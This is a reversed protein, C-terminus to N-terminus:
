MKMMQEEGRVTLVDRLRDAESQELGHIIANTDASATQLEVTALKLMSEIPGSKVDVLQMRGYPVATTRRSLLGRTVLIHEDFEAYGWSRVQRPVLVFLSLQWVLMLVPLFYVLWLPLSWDLLLHGLLPISFVFVLVLTWIIRQMLRLKMYRDSVRKWTIGDIDQGLPKQPVAEPSFSQQEVLPESM